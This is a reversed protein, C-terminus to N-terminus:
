PAATLPSGAAFAGALEPRGLRGRVVAAHEAEAALIAAVTLRVEETAVRPLADVYVGLTQEESALLMALADRRHAPPALAAAYQASGVAAAPAAGLAYIANVLATAHQREHALFAEALALTRGRLAVSAVSYTAITRREVDLLSSLLAVDAQAETTTTTRVHNSHTRRGGGSAAVIAVAAGTAGAGAAVLLERRSRHRLRPHDAEM